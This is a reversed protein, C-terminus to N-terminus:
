MCISHNYHLGTSTYMIHTYMWVCLACTLLLWRGLLVGSVINLCQMTVPYCGVLYMVVSVYPKADSIEILPYKLVVSRAVCLYDDHTPYRKFRLMASAVYSIFRQKEKTSM